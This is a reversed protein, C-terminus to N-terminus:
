KSAFGRQRSNSFVRNVIPERISFFVQNEEPSFELAENYAETVLCMWLCSLWLVALIDMLSAPPRRVKELFLLNVWRKQHSEPKTSYEFWNKRQRHFM